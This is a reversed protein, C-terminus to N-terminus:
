SSGSDDTPAPELNAEAAEQAKETIGSLEAAVDNVRALAVASKQGLRGIDLENFLPNGDEDVIARAVLKATMNGFDQGVKGNPLMVVSSAQFADREAGSLGRVRVVGGWEPVPVDRTQLDDAKLIDERNLYTV